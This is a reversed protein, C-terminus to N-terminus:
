IGGLVKRLQRRIRRNLTGYAREDIGLLEMTEKGSLGDIIAEVMLMDTENSFHKEIQDVLDDALALSAPDSSIDVAAEVIGPRDGEFGDAAGSLDWELVTRAHEDKRRLSKLHSNRISSVTMEFYRPADVSKPWSRRGDLTRSFAEQLLDGATLAPLSAAYTGAIAQLRALTVGDLNELFETVEQVSYYEEQLKADM